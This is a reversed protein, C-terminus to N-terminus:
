IGGGPSFLVPLLAAFLGETRDKAKGPTLYSGGPVPTFFGPAAKLATGPM